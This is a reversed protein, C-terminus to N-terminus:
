GLYLKRMRCFFSSIRSTIEYALNNINREQVFEKEASYCNIVPKNLKMNVLNHFECFSISLAKQSSPNLVRSRSFLDIGTSCSPCPYLVGLASILSRVAQKEKATPNEPYYKAITHLLYWTSRGLREKEERSILSSNKEVKMGLLFLYKLNRFLYNQFPLSFDFYFFFIGATISLSTLM